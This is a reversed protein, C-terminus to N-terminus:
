VFEIPKCIRTCWRQRSDWSGTALQSVFHHYSCRQRCRHDRSSEMVQRFSMGHRKQLLLMPIQAIRDFYLLEALWAFTKARIWDARPM